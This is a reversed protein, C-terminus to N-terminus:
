FLIIRHAGIVRKDLGLHEPHDTGSFYESFFVVFEQEGRRQYRDRGDLRFKVILAGHM